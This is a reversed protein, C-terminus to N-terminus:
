FRNVLCLNLLQREGLIAGILAGVVTRFCGVRHFVGPVFDEDIQDTALSEEGQSWIALMRGRLSPALNSRGGDKSNPVPAQRKVAAPSDAATARAM